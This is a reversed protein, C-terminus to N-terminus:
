CDFREPFYLIVDPFDSLYGLHPDHTRYISFIQSIELQILNLDACLLRCIEGHTSYDNTSSKLPYKRGRRTLKETRKDSSITSWCDGQGM